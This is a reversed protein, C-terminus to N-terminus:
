AEETDRLLTAVKRGGLKHPRRGVTIRRARLAVLAHKLRKELSDLAAYLDHHHETLNLERHGPLLVQVHCSFRETGQGADLQVEVRNLDHADAHARLTDVIRSEVHERISDTLDFHRATLYFHMAPPTADVM